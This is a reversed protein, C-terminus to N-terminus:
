YMSADIAAGDARNCLQKFIDTSIGYSIQHVSGDCFAMNCMGAHPGGFYEGADYGQQDQIPRDHYRETQPDYGGFCGWEDGHAVGSAYDSPNLYKEGCLIVNSTGDSVQAMTINILPCIIGGRGCGSAASMVLARVHEVTAPNSFATNNAAVPGGLVLATAMVSMLTADSGALGAVDLWEYANACYDNRGVSNVGTVRTCTTPAGTDYIIFENGTFGYTTLFTLTGGHVKQAPNPYAQTPRRSPCYFANLPTALLTTAATKLAAGTQGQQVKYL